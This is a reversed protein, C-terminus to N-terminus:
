KRFLGKLADNISKIADDGGAASDNGQAENPSSDGETSPELDEIVSSKSASEPEASSELINRSAAVPSQPRDSLKPMAKLKSSSAKSPLASSKGVYRSMMATLRDKDENLNQLRDRCVTIRTELELVQQEIVKIEEGTLAEKETFEQLIQQMMEVNITPM